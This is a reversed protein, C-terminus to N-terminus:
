NTDASVSFMLVNVVIRTTQPSHSYETLELTRSRIEKQRTHKELDEASLEQLLLIQIWWNEHFLFRSLITDTVCLFTDKKKAERRKIDNFDATQSQGGTCDGKQFEIVAIVDATVLSRSAHREGLFLVCPRM